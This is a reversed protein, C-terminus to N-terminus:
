IMVDGEKVKMFDKTRPRWDSQTFGRAVCENAM